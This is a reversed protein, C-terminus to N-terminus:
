PSELRMAIPRLPSGTAGRIKLPAAIFLSEYVSAVSLEELDLLEIMPVGAEALFHTHGPLWNTSDTSPTSEVAGNDAGVLSIGADTLWRAAAVSLGPSDDMVAPAPWHAMRGTRVLAVDGIGLRHGALELARECDEVTIAYSDELASVGLAKPIDLLVARTVIPPITDAGARTWHRSGLHERTNFGNYIDDGYGFHNLADIHTGTHTYMLVVDGSYGVCGNIESGVANANDVVTGSPTHTMWIQFPPDGAGQFSPMGLFLDVGLDFIRSADVRLMLGTIDVDALARLAGLEDAPGGPSTGPTPTPTVFVDTM